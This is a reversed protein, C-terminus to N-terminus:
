DPISETVYDAAAINPQARLVQIRADADVRSVIEQGTKICGNEVYIYEVVTKGQNYLEKLNPLKQPEYDDCIRAGKFLRDVKETDLSSKPYKTKLDERDKVVKSDSSNDKQVFYYGGAGVVVLLVIIPLVIKFNIKM